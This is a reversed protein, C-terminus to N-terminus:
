LTIKKVVQDVVNTGDKLQIRIDWEGPMIFFVNEARYEGSKIKQVTVPASGHGMSPMWLQVFVNDTPEIFLTPTEEAYFKFIFSGPVSITPAFEWEFSTCLTKLTLFLDCSPKTKQNEVDIPAAEQYNPKACAVLFLLLVLYKM